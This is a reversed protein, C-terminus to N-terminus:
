ECTEAPESKQLFADVLWFQLANMALPTLIMAVFLRQRPEPVPSLCFEALAVAAESFDLMLLVMAAKMLSVIALWLLLQKGYLADSFHKSKGSALNYLGL